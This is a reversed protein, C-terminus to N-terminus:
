EYTYIVYLYHNLQSMTLEGTKFKDFIIKQIKKKNIGFKTGFLYFPLFLNFIM